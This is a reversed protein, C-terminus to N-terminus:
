PPFAALPKNPVQHEAREREIRAQEARYRRIKDAGKEILSAIERLEGAMGAASTQDTRVASVFQRAARGTWRSGEAQRLFQGARGGSDLVDAQRRLARAAADLAGPDATPEM